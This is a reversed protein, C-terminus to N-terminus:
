ASAHAVEGLITFLDEVCHARRGLFLGDLNGAKEFTGPGTTGGYIVRTTTRRDVLAARLREAVDRIHEQSATRGGRNGLSTRLCARRTRRAVRAALGSSSPSARLLQRSARAGGREGVCILSTLGSNIAARVKTHVVRDDERFLQRREAHGIEVFSCGAEALMPPSIEGTCPGADEWFVNQAGPAIGYGAFVRRVSEFSVFSPLVM